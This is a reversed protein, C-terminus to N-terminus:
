SFIFFIPYVIICIPLLLFIGYDLLFKNIENCSLFNRRIGISADNNGISVNDNGSNEEQKKTIQQKTQECTYSNTDM